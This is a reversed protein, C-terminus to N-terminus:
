RVWCHWPLSNWGHNLAKPFIASILFSFYLILILPLFIYTQTLDQWMELFCLFFLGLTLLWALRVHLINYIHLCSKKGGQTNIVKQFCDKFGTGDNRHSWMHKIRQVSTGCLIDNNLQSINVCSVCREPWNITLKKSSFFLCHYLKHVQTKPVYFCQWGRQKTIYSYQPSTKLKVERTKINSITGPQEKKMYFFIQVFTLHQKLINNFLQQQSIWFAPSSILDRNGAYLTRCM